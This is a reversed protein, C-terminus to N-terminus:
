TELKKVLGDHRKIFQARSGYYWSSESEPNNYYLLSLLYAREAETLKVTV